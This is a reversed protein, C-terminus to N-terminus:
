FQIEVEVTKDLSGKVKAGIEKFTGGLEGAAEKSIKMKMKKVGKEKGAEILEKAAKVQDDYPTKDENSAKRKTLKSIGWAALIGAPGFLYTLGFLKGVEKLGDKTTLDYIEAM